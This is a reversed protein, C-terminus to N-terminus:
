EGKEPSQPYLANFARRRATELDTSADISRLAEKLREIEAYPDPGVQVNGHNARFLDISQTHLNKSVAHLENALGGNIEELKLNQQQCASLKFSLREIEKDMGAVQDGLQDSIEREEKIKSQLFDNQVDKAEIQKQYFKDQAKWAFEIAQHHQPYGGYSTICEEMREETEKSRSSGPPQTM